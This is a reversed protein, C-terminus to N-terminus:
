LALGEFRVIKVELQQVRVELQQIREQQLYIHRPVAAVPSHM